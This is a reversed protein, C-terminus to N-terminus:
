TIVMFLVVCLIYDWAFCVMSFFLEQCKGLIADADKMSEDELDVPYVAKLEGEFIGQQDNGDSM